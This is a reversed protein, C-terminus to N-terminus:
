RMGLPSCSSLVYFPFSVFICASLNRRSPIQPSTATEVKVRVQFMKGPALSSHVAAIQLDTKNRGGGAVGWKLRDRDSCGDMWGGRRRRRGSKWGGERKELCCTIIHGEALTSSVMGCDCRAGRNSGSFYVWVLAPLPLPFPPPLPLPLCPVLLLPGFPLPLFSLSLPFSLSFFFSFTFGVVPAASVPHTTILGPQIYVALLPLFGREATVGSFILDM